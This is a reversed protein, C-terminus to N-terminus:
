REAAREDLIEAKLVGILRVLKMQESLEGELLHIHTADVAAQGLTPDMELWRGVYVAPWAHYYFSGENYTLGVVIRSPLGVARALAVFLYTHENCDGEMIRLVDLASPISVTPMKRMNGHVWQHIKLAMGLSDTSGKVIQKARAAIEPADAQVYPTSGLFRSYEGPIDEVAPANDPIKESRIDLDVSTESIREVTQRRSTLEKEGFTGGLLRIRLRTSSRPRPIRGRVPVAHAKLFDSTPEAGDTTSLAEEPDCAEMSWGLPTEQRLIKGNADMWSLFEIGEFDASLVTSECQGGGHSVTEKRLARILIDGTTLTVPNFTRVRMQQGPKLRQVAMETMPSYLVADDPIEIRITRISHGTRITVDFLGDEARAGQVALSYGSSTLAFFFNQLEYMANLAAKGSARIDQQEGMIKLSLHTENHILYQNIV